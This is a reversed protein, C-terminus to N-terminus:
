LSVLVKKLWFYKCMWEYLGPRFRFGGNTFVFISPLLINAYMIANFVPTRGYGSKVLYCYSMLLGLFGFSIFRSMDVTLIVILIPSLISVGFVFSAKSFQKAKLMKLFVYIIICWLLKYSIFWGGVARIPFEIMWNYGIKNQLVIQSEMLKYVNLKFSLLLLVFYLTIVIFHKYAEKKPFLFIIVPIFIFVSAEHSVLALATISLRSEPTDAAIVSVIFIIFLLPDAFGQVAFNFIVFSSTSLSLIHLLNIKVEKYELFAIVFFILFFTIILSFIYYLIVGQFGLFYALAPMLIRRYYWGSSAEFPSLSMLAYHYGASKLNIPFVFLSLCLFILASNVLRKKLNVPHWLFTSRKLSKLIPLLIILMSFLFTVKKLRFLLNQVTLLSLNKGWITIKTFESDQFIFNFAQESIIVVKDKPMHVIIFIAFISIWLATKFSSSCSTAPGNMNLFSRLSHKFNQSSLIFRRLWEALITVRTLV